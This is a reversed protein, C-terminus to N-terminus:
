TVSGTSFDSGRGATALKELITLGGNETVTRVIALFSIKLEFGPAHRRARQISSPTFPRPHGDSRNALTM